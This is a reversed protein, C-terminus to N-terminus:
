IHAGFSSIICELERTTRIFKQGRALWNKELIKKYNKNFQRFEDPTLISYYGLGLREVIYGGSIKRYYPYHGCVNSVGHIYEHNKDLQHVRDVYYYQSAASKRRYDGDDRFVFNVPLKFGVAIKAHEYAEEKDKITIGCTPCEYATIEIPETM